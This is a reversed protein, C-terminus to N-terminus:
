LNSVFGQKTAFEVYDFTNSDFKNGLEAQAHETIIKRLVKSKNLTTATLIPGSSGSNTMRYATLTYRLTSEDSVHGMKAMLTALLLPSAVVGTSDLPINNAKCTDIVTWTAFTHRLHHPRINNNKRGMSMSAEKFALRVDTYTIRKGDERLWMPEDESNWKFQYEYVRNEYCAARYCHQIEHIARIPLDCEKTDGGKNIYKMPICDNMALGGKNIHKLWNSLDRDNVRLAASIRLGTEVVLVAIAEYVVDIARLQTRFAEFELKTIAPYYLKKPSSKVYLNWRELLKVNKGHGTGRVHQLFHDPLKVEIKSTNMLMRIPEKMWQQHKFFKFWVAIKQNMTDNEIPEYDYYDEDLSDNINWCLMSNRILRVDEEEADRWDIGLADLGRFLEIIKYARTAHTGYGAIGGHQGGNRAEYVLFSFSEKDLKNDIFICSIKRDTLSPHDVTVRKYNRERPNNM